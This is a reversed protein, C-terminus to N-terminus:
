TADPVILLNGDYRQYAAEGMAEFRLSTLVRSGTPVFAVITAPGVGVADILAARTPFDALTEASIETWVLPRCSALLPRLGEFVEKEAGQVDIKLLDVSTVGAAALLRDGRRAELTTTRVPEGPMAFGDKFSGLGTNSAPPLNFQLSTDENWLGVRHLTVHDVGNAAMRAALEDAVAPNPEFAHVHEFMSAFALAHHGVNAGVDLAVGGKRGRAALRARVFEIEAREYADYFYVQRDIFKGFSGQYRYGYFPVDFARADGGAMPVLLDVLRNYGRLPKLPGAQRLAAAVVSPGRNGSVV